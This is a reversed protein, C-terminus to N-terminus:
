LDLPTITVRAVPKSVDWNLSAPADADGRIGTHLAIVGDEPDRENGGGLAPMYGKLENNKESGADYGQVEITLPQTLGFADVDAIGSFGDNTAGLMWVGDIVPHQEDVRLVLMRTQGPLTHIAIAADGLSMGIEGAAGLSFKGTDGGEAVAALAESAKDGLKFLPAADKARAEFFGPSFPQSATLDEITILVLRGSPMPPAMMMADQAFAPATAAAALTAALALTTRHM